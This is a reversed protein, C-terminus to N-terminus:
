LPCKAGDQGGAVHAEASLRGAGGESVGSGPCGVAPPHRLATERTRGLGERFRDNSCRRTVRGGPPRVNSVM